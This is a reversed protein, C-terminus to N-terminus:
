FVRCVAYRSGHQLATHTLVSVTSRELDQDTLALTFSNSTHVNYLGVWLLVLIVIMSEGLYLRYSSNFSVGQMSVDTAITTSRDLHEAVLAYFYLQGSRVVMRGKAKTAAARSTTSRGAPAFSLQAQKSTTAAKKKAPAKKAPQSQSHYSRNALLSFSEM